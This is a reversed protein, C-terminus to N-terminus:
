LMQLVGFHRWVMVLDIVAGLRVVVVVVAWWHGSVATRRRQLGLPSASGGIETVSCAIVVIISRIM